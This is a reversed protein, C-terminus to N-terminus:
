PTADDPAPSEVAGVLRLHSDDTRIAKRAEMKRRLEDLRALRDDESLPEDRISTPKGEELRAVGHLTRAASALAAADRPDVDAAASRQTLDIAIARALEGFDIDHTQAILEQARRRNEARMVDPDRDRLAQRHEAKRRRSEVSAASAVKARESDFRTREGNM